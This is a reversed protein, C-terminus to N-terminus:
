SGFNSLLLSLDQINVRRDGNVDGSISVSSVRGINSLIISLDTVTVKGDGSIDAPSPPAVVTMQVGVAQMQNGMRAIVFVDGTGTKFPTFNSITGQLPNLSGVSNSSSIGWEYTVGSWIPNNNQDYALASLGVSGKGITATKSAAQIQVSSLTISQAHSISAHSLFSYLCIGSIITYVLFRYPAYYRM